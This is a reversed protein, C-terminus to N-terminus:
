HVGMLVRVHETVSRALASLVYGGELSSVVRGRASENAVKVLEATIWAYDAERLHINSMDDEIHADFGASIFVMQPAFRHLAPLWSQRIAERFQEGNTGAPLPTDVIHPNDQNIPTHPYFPHQFSSCVMVRHDEQFIAETGNGHHVDFDCIAVRSLGFESIAHAAGVAVNNFFCFGMAQGPTAHHGPPRVNCFANKVKGDAVLETALVVGGAARLAAEPTHRMIVTDPDLYDHDHWDDGTYGLIKKIYPEKHVRGLQVRTARPAEHYRLFDLLGAAMLRDEIAGLREPCEPHGEGMDHLVCDAHTIYATTM